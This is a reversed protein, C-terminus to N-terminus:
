GRPFTPLGTKPISRGCGASEASSMNRFCCRPARAKRASTPMPRSSRSPGARSRSFASSRLGLPSCSRFCINSRARQKPWDAATASLGATFSAMWAIVCPLVVVLGLAAIGLGATISAVIVQSYRDLTPFLYLPLSLWLAGPRRRRRGDALRSAPPRLPRRPNDGPDPGDADGSISWRSRLRGAVLSCLSLCRSWLPLRHGHGRRRYERGRLIARSRRARSAACRAAALEGARGEGASLALSEGDPLRASIM